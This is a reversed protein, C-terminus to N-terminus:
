HANAAEQKLNTAPVVLRKAVLQNNAFGRITLIDATNAIKLRAQGETATGGLYKEGSFVQLNTINRTTCVLIISQAKVISNVSLEYFPSKALQKGAAALLDENHGLIDQLSPKYVIDPLIGLDELVRGESKGSRICRRATFSLMIGGPIGQLGTRSLDPYVNLIRDMLRVQHKLNGDEITWVSDGDDDVPGSIVAQDTLSVGQQNFIKRLATSPITQTLDSKLAIDLQFDPVFERLVEFPWNNGGAAGMNKDISIVQGIAHDMFGAAFMDATSFALADTILIVPGFYRQGIQNADEDTGEIPFGQSYTEGTRNADSIALSWTRFHLTAAIMQTVGPTVRFQFRSPTIKKPTLLQLIREGAAIYGGSNGRMDIILGNPPMQELVPVTANAIDDVNNASFNYLRIYGFTGSDTSVSGYDYNATTGIIQPTGTKRLSVAIAPNKHDFSNPAFRARKTLQLQLLELDGGFGTINRGVAATLPVQGVDFGQWDFREEYQQNAIAFGLVVWSESPLAFRSLPRHTLFELSRALAAADNGGDFLNAALRVQRAIPVGNWHTVVAAVQLHQLKSSSDLKSVVYTEQDDIYCREIYFPLVASAGNPSRGYFQLHRDRTRTVLQIISQHFEEDSLSELVPELRDLARLADFGYQAKKLELHVYFDRLVIKLQQVLRQRDALPYIFLTSALISNLSFMRALTLGSPSTVIKTEQSLLNPLDNFTEATANPKLVDSSSMMGGQLLVFENEASQPITKPIFGRKL